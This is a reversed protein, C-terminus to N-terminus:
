AGKSVVVAAAVCAGLGASRPARAHLPEPLQSARSSPPRPLSPPTASRKKPPMFSCRLMLRVHQALCRGKM